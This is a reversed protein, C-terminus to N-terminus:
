SSCVSQAVAGGVVTLINNAYSLSPLVALQCSFNKRKLKLVKASLQSCLVNLM